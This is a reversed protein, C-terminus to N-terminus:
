NNIERFFLTIEIRRRMKMVKIRKQLFFFSTSSKCSYLQQTTNVVCLKEIGNSKHLHRSTLILRPSEAKFSGAMGVALQWQYKTFIDDNRLLHILYDHKKTM